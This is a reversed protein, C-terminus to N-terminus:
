NLCASGGRCGLATPEMERKLGQRLNQCMTLVGIFAQQGSSTPQWFFIPMTNLFSNKSLFIIIKFDDAYPHYTFPQHHILQGLIIIYLIFKYLATSRQNPSLSLSKFPGDFSSVSFSCLLPRCNSTPTTWTEFLLPLSRLLLHWQSTSYFSASCRGRSRVMKFIM